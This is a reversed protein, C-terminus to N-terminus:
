LMVGLAQLAAQQRAVEEMMWLTLQRIFGTQEAFPIFQMPPVLGREPHQWRVLAEAASAAGSAIMVKPQLYLRLEQREIARRLESLLSLTQASATDVAPDYVQASATRRKAAYMAVEARSLLMDVDQAHQPWNAIGVGASLDVLQDDLQMPQEFCQAIRQAVQEGMAVDAEHLLLAFEDGGLRAVVDGERVVGQLRQAVALLLKDGSAYGLVDNVHKFRDLDLMLVTATAGSRHASATMAAAVADRFQLRNPLQTLRDTYALSRIQQQQSGISIRMQDFALALHDLEGGQGSPQLPQDYQGQGVRNAARALRRLPQTIRRAMWHSSVGFLVVGLLSIVALLLQLQRFPAVAADVSGALRLTLRGEPSSALALTGVRWQEDGLRLDGDALQNVLPRWDLLPSLSTSVLRAPGDVPQALVTTTLGSVTDMDIVLARDVPFGMAVWGVLVPARMPVLVVEAERFGFDAALLAAGQNLTASRQDLLHQWVQGGLQMRQELLRRANTDISQRI